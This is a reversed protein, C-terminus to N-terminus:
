RPGLPMNIVPVSSHSISGSNHFFTRYLIFASVLFIFIALIILIFNAQAVNEAIGSNILFKNMRPTRDAEIFRQGFGAQQEQDFEVNTM